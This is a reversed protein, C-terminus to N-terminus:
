SGEWKGDTKKNSYDEFQNRWKRIQPKLKEYVVLVVLVALVIFWGYKELFGIAAFVFFFCDKRRLIVRSLLWVVNEEAVTVVETYQEERM